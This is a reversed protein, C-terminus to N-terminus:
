KVQGYLVNYEYVGSSAIWRWFLELSLHEILTTLLSNNLLLIASPIGCHSYTVEDM